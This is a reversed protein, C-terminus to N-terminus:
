RVFNKTMELTKNEIRATRESSFANVLEGRSKRDLNIRLQLFTDLLYELNVVKRGYKARLLEALYQLKTFAKIENDTMESFARIKEEDSLRQLVKFHSEDSIPESFLDEVNDM